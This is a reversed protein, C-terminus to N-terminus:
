GKSPRQKWWTLRYHKRIRSVEWVGIENFRTAKNFDSKSVDYTAHQGYGDILHLQYQEFGYSFTYGLCNFRVVTDWSPGIKVELKGVVKDPATACWLWVGFILLGFCVSIKTYM